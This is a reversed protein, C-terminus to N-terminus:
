AATALAALEPFDNSGNPLYVTNLMGNHLEVRIWGLLDSEYVVHGHDLLREIQSRHMHIYIDQILLILSQTEADKDLVWQWDDVLNQAAGEGIRMDFRGGDTAYWTINVGQKCLRTVDIETCAELARLGDKKRDKDINRRKMLKGVMKQILAEALFSLSGRRDIRWGTLPVYRRTDLELNFSPNTRKQRHRRDHRKRVKARDSNRRNQAREYVYKM